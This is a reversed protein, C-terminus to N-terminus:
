VKEPADFEQRMNSRDDARNKPFVDSTVSERIAEGQTSRKNAGPLESQVFAYAKNLFM